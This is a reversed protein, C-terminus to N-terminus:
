NLSGLVHMATDYDKSRVYLYMMTKQANNEGVNGLINGSRNSIGFDDSKTYYKINAKELLDIAKSM